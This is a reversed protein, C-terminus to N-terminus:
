KQHSTTPPPGRLVRCAPPVARAPEERRRTGGGRGAGARTNHNRTDLVRDRGVPQTWGRTEDTKLTDYVSDRGLPSHRVGLPSLGHRNKVDVHAGAEVLVQVHLTTV